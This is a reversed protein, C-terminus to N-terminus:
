INIGGSRLDADQTINGTMDKQSSRGKLREKNKKPQSSQTGRSPGVVQDNVRDPPPANGTQVERRDRIGEAEISDKRYWKGDLKETEWGGLVKGTTGDKNRMHILKPGGAKGANEHMAAGGEPYTSTAAAACM